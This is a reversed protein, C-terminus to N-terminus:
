CNENLAVATGNVWGVEGPGIRIEYWGVQEQIAEAWRNIDLRAVLAFQEGPGLHVNVPGTQGPHAVICHEAPPSGTEGVLPVDPTAVLTPPLTPPALIPLNSTNDAVTVDTDAVWSRPGPGDGPGHIAWWSGEANRGALMVTTGPGLFHSLEYDLGPGVRVATVDQTVFHPDTPAPGTVTPPPGSAPAPTNTPPPPVLPTFTPQISSLPEATETRDPTALLEATPEAVVLTVVPTPMTGEVVIPFALCATLWVSLSSVAITCIIRKINM